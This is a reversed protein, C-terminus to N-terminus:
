PSVTFVLKKVFKGRESTFQPAMKDGFPHGLVDYDKLELQTVLNEFEAM